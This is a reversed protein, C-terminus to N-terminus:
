VPTKKNLRHTYIVYIGLLLALILLLVLGQDIPLGPPPPPKKKGTPVPPGPAALVNVVGFLFVVVIKNVISRM